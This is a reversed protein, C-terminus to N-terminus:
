GTGGASGPWASGAYRVAGLAFNVAKHQLNSPGATAMEPPAPSPRLCEPVIPCSTGTIGAKALQARAIGRQFQERVLNWILYKEPRVAHFNIFEPDFWVGEPGFKELMLNEVATEEGFAM